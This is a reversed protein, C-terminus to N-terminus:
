QQAAARNRRLRGCIRSRNAWSIRLFMSASRKDRRITRLRKLRIQPLSSPAVDTQTPSDPWWRGWHHAPGWM